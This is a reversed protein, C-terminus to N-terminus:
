NFLKKAKRKKKFAANEPQITSYDAVQIVDDDNNNINNPNEKIILHNSQTKKAKHRDM